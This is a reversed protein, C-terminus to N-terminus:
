QLLIHSIVNFVLHQRKYTAELKLFYTEGPVLGKTGNVTVYWQGGVTEIIPPHLHKVHKLGRALEKSPKIVFTNEGQHTGKVGPQLLCEFFAIVKAAREDTSEICHSGVFTRNGNFKNEVFYYAHIPTQGCNCVNHQGEEIARSEVFMWENKFDDKEESLGQLHLFLNMDKERVIRDHYKRMHTQRNDSRTFTAECYWCQFSPKVEAHVTAIHIKLEQARTLVKNCHPCPFRRPIASHQQRVHRLM